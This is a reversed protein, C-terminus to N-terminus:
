TDGYNHGYVEIGLDLDLDVLSALTARPIKDGLYGDGLFQLIVQARGGTSRIRSLFPAHPELSRVFAVVADAFHQGQADHRLTHRWRTDPNVGPVPTGKPTRRPEGVCHFFKAELSLAASIEEPRMTPHVIFLEVDFRKSPREGQTEAQTM